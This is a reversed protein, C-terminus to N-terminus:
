LVINETRIPSLYSLAAKIKSLCDPHDHLVILQNDVKKNALFTIIDNDSVKKDFDGPMLNWFVINMKLDDIIRQYQARTIRGYPPRYLDSEIFEGAKTVNDLYDQTTTKWGSLHEFGHNGLAHGRAIIADLLHPYLKVNKGLCFFTAKINHLDLLDLLQPTSKPHPGDDFTWKLLPRDHSNWIAKPYLAQIFSPIVKLYM